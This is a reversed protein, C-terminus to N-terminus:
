GAAPPAVGVSVREWFGAAPSVHVVFRGGAAPLEYKGRGTFPHALTHPLHSPAPIARKSLPRHRGLTTPRVSSM